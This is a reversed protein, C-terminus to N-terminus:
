GGARLDRWGAWSWVVEGQAVPGCTGRLYSGELRGACRVAGGLGPHAFRFALRDGELRGGELRVERRGVQVTGSVVQYKRSLRLVLHRPGDPSYVVCKWTGEVWAPVVWLYIIRGRAEVRGDPKWDDMDFYNSVVRSGTRLESLLKPRLRRNISPLLFLSVVTAPRLDVDFLSDRVFRVRDTVGAREANWNGERVRLRDIDVGVGSAGRRAAGIVIRGDGCGLDYLVDGPGVAALDLMGEVISEATPVYPVVPKRPPVRPETRFASSADHGPLRPREGANTGFAM